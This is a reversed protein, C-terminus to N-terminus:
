TDIAEFFEFYEIETSGILVGKSLPIADSFRGMGDVGWVQEIYIDQIEPDEPNSSAYSNHGFLGGLLNGNKLHVLIWVPKRQGFFSDWATPTPNLMWKRIPKSNRIRFLLITCLAPFAFGYGVVAVTLWVPHADWTLNEAALKLLWFLLVFNLIGYTLGDIISHQYTRRATPVLMEWVKLAVFGPIVLVVFFVLKEPAFLDPM